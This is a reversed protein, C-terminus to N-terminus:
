FIKRIGQPGLDYALAQDMIRCIAEDGGGDSWGRAERDANHTLRFKGGRVSRM